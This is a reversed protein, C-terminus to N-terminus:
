VFKKIAKKWFFYYIFHQHIAVIRVIYYTYLIQVIFMCRRIM